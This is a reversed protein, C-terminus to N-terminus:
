NNYIAYQSYKLLSKSLLQQHLYSDIEYHTFISIRGPDYEVGHLTCTHGLVYVDTDEPLTVFEKKNDKVVYLGESRKGKILIRYGCPENDVNNKYLIPDADPNTFDIHEEVIDNQINFKVNRINKIPFLSFWSVLEPYENLIDKSIQTEQYLKETPETLKKFKWYAWNTDPTLNFEQIPFKPLDIPLWLLTM